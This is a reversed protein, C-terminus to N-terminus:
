GKNFPLPSNFAGVIIISTTIEEKLERLKKTEHVKLRQQKAWVCKPDNHSGLTSIAKNNHLAEKKRKDIEKLRVEVKKSITVM